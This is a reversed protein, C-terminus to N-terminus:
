NEKPTLNILESPYHGGGRLPDIHDAAFTMGETFKTGALPSHSETRIDRAAESASRNGIAQQYRLLMDEAFHFRLFADIEAPTAHFRSPPAMHRIQRVDAGEGYQVRVAAQVIDLLIRADHEDDATHFHDSGRPTVVIRFPTDSM